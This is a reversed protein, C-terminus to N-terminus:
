RPAVSGGARRLPSRSPMGTSGVRRDLRVAGAARVELSRAVDEGGSADLVGGGGGELRRSDLASRRPTSEDAQVHGHEDADGQLRCARPRPPRDLDDDQRERDHPARGPQRRLPDRTECAAAEGERRHRDCDGDGATGPGAPQLPHWGRAEARSHRPPLDVGAEAGAATRDPSLASASTSSSRPSFRRTLRLSGGINYNADDLALQAYDEAFIEAISRDRGLVYSTAVSSIRVLREMGHARWWVPTGNPERMDTSPTSRDLHHGYEHVVTHANEATQEAPVVMLQPRLLRSCQPRVTEHLEDPSSDVRVTSIEDRHPAARLLAAYWEADVGEVHLDFRISRGENDPLVIEAAAAQGAFVLSLVLWAAAFTADRSDYLPRPLLFTFRRLGTTVPNQSWRGSRIVRIARM